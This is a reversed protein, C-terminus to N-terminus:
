FGILNILSNNLDVGLGVFIAKVILWASLAIVLGIAAHSFIKKVTTIAGPDGKSFMLKVGAYVFLIASLPLVIDFLLFNIVNNILSFIDNFTCPNSNTQTGCPILETRAHTIVPILFFLIIFYIKHLKKSIIKM